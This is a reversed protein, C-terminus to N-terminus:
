KVEGAMGCGDPFFSFTDDGAGKGNAKRREGDSKEEELGRDEVWDEIQPKM